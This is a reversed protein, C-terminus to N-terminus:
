RYYSLCESVISLHPMRELMLGHGSCTGIEEGLSAELAASWEAPARKLADQGCRAVIPTIAEECETESMALCATFVPQGGCIESPLEEV